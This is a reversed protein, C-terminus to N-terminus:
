IEDEREGKFEAEMKKFINEDDIEISGDTYVEGFSEKYAEFKANFNDPESDKGKYIKYATFSTNFKANDKKEQEKEEKKDAPLM